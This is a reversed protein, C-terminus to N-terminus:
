CTHSSEVIPEIVETTEKKDELGNEVNCEDIDRKQM